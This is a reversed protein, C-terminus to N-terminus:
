LDNNVSTVVICGRNQLEPRLQAAEEITSKIFKACFGEEQGSKKMSANFWGRLHVITCM